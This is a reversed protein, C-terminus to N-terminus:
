HNVLCPGDTPADNNMHVGIHHINQTHSILHYLRIIYLVAVSSAYIIIIIFFCCDFKYLIICTLVSGYIKSRISIHDM